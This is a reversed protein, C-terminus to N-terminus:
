TYGSGSKFSHPALWRSSNMVSEGVTWGDVQFAFRQYTEAVIHHFLHLTLITQIGLLAWLVSHGIGKCKENHRGGKGDYVETSCHFQCALSEM